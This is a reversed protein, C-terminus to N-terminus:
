DKLLHQDQNLHELAINEVNVREKQGLYEGQDQDRDVELGQGEEQVQDQGINEQGEKIKEREGQDEELGQVHVHHLLHDLTARINEREEQNLERM